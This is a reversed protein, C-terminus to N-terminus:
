RELQAGYPRLRAKVLSEVTPAIKPRTLSALAEEYTMMGRRVQESIPLVHPHYGHHDMYRQIVYGELLCSTNASIRPAQWPTDRLLEYREALSMSLGALLRVMTIGKVGTYPFSDHVPDYMIVQNTDVDHAYLWERGVIICSIRRGAAYQGLIRMYHHACPVCFNDYRDIARLSADDLRVPIIEWSVRIQSVLRAVNRLAAECCFGNDVTVAMLRLNPFNNRLWVLSASSDKGGSIALVAPEERQVLGELYDFTQQALKKKDLPHSEQEHCLNCLGDKLIRVTPFADTILCNRCEM